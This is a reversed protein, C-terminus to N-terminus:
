ALSLKEEPVICQVPMDDGFPYAEVIAMEIMASANYPVHKREIFKGTLHQGFKDTFSVLDGPNLPKSM